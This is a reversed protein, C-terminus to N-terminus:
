QCTRQRSYRFEALRKILRDYSRQIYYCMCFLAPIVLFILAANQLAGSLRAGIILVNTVAFVPMHFLYICYSAYALATIVPVAIRKHDSFPREIFLFRHSGASAVVGLIFVFYYMFFRYDIINLAEHIILLGIFIGAAILIRKKITGRNDSFLPYIAYMIIIFGIFWLTFIPELFAPSLLVQLCLINAIWGAISYHIPPFLGFVQFCIFFVFLAVIYLPYIRLIRKKYFHLIEGRDKLTRNNEHIAYGSAFMFCALGLFKLGEILYFNPIVVASLFNQMHVFIVVLIGFAKIIDLFLLRKM